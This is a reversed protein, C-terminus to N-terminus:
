EKKKIKSGVVFTPFSNSKFHVLYGTREMYFKGAVHLPKESYIGGLVEGETGLPTIDSGPSDEEVKIVISGRKILRPDDNNLMFALFHEDVEIARSTLDM